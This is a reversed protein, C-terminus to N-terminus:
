VRRGRGPRWRHVEGRRPTAASSRPRSRLLAADCQVGAVPELEDGGLNLFFARFERDTRERYASSAPWVALMRPWMRRLDEEHPCSTGTINLPRPEPRLVEGGLRAHVRM